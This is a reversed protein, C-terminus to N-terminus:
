TCSLNFPSLWLFDNYLPFSLSIKMSTTNPIAKYDVRVSIGSTPQNESLYREIQNDCKWKEVKELCELDNSESLSLSFTGMVM